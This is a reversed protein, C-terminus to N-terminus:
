RRWVKIESANTDWFLAKTDLIGRQLDIYPITGRFGFNTKDINKDIYKNTINRKCGFDM